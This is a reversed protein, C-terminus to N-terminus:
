KKQGPCTAAIDKITQAHITPPEKRSVAPDQEGGFIVKGNPSDVVPIGTEVGPVGRLAGIVEVQHGDLAKVQSSIVRISTVKLVDPLKTEVAPPVNQPEIHSLKDKTLCGRIVYGKASSPAQATQNQQGAGVVPATAGAM